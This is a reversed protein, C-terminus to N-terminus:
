IKGGVFINHWFVKKLHTTTVFTAPHAPFGALIIVNRSDDM